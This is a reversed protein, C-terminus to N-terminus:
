WPSVSSANVNHSQYIDINHLLWV